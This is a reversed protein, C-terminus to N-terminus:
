FIDTNTTVMMNLFWSTGCLALPLKELLIYVVTNQPRILTELRLAALLIYLCTSILLFEYSSMCVINLIVVGLFPLEKLAM